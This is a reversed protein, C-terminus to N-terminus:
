TEEVPMDTFMAEVDFSVLMGEGKVKIEKINEVCGRSYKTHYENM